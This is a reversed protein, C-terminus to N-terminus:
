QNKLKLLYNNFNTENNIILDLEKLNKKWSLTKKYFPYITWDTIKVKKHKIKFEDFNGLSIPLIGYNLAECLSTSFYGVVFKPSIQKFLDYSLDNKDIITVNKSNYFELFNFHTKPHEKIYIKYNYLKFYDIIQILDNKNIYKESQRLFIIISSNYYKLQEYQYTIIKKFSYNKELYKKEFNSFVCLIDFNPIILASFKGLLGHSLFTIPINNNIISLSQFWSGSTYCKINPKIIKIKKYFSHYFANLVIKKTIGNYIFSIEPNMKFELSEKFLYINEFFKSILDIYDVNIVKFNDIIKYSNQIILDEKKFNPLFKLNKYDHGENVKLFISEFNFKKKKIFIFQSFFVLHILFLSYLFNILYYIKNIKTKSIKLISEQCLIRSLKYDCYIWKNKDTIINEIKLM